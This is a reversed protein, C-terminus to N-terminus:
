VWESDSDTKDEIESEHARPVFCGRDCEKVLYAVCLKCMACSLCAGIIILFSAYLIM